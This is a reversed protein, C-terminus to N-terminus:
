SAKNGSGLALGPPVGALLMNLEAETEEFGFRSDWFKFLDVICGCLLFNKCCNRERTEKAHREQDSRLMRNLATSV